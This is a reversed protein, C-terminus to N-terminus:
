KVLEYQLMDQRSACSCGSCGGKKCGIEVVVIRGKAVLLDLMPELADCSMSFHLALERLSLRSHKELLEIIERLM